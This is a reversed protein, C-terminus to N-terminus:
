RGRRPCPRSGARAGRRSPRVAHSGRAAPEPATEGEDRGRRATETRREGLAEGGLARLDNQERAGLASELLDIVLDAPGAARWRRQQREIKALGVLDVLHARRDVLTEAPEVHEDAIGRHEA